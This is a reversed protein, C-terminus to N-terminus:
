EPPRIRRVSGGSLWLSGAGYRLTGYEEILVHYKGRVTNTRPDIQIIPSSRTSAWVYGGGTTITGNGAAGTPISAVVKSSAAGIRQVSGDGDNFVWISGESATMFRPRSSLEITAMLSNSVPNIRYLEDNTPSTVWVAGFAVLVGFGRAPLTIAAQENGNTTAFRKLTYGGGCIAWVAGEGVGLSETRPTLDASIKRVVQNSGPDIKYIASHGADPVWVAGEGTVTDANVSRGLVDPLPIDAVSNDGIRIRGLSTGSMIWVSDFGVGMGNGFRSITAEILADPLVEDARVLSTVFMVAISFLAAVTKAYELAM